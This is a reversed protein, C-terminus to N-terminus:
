RIARNYSVKVQCLETPSDHITGEVDSIVVRDILRHPSVSSLDSVLSVQHSRNLLTALRAVHLTIDAATLSCSKMNVIGFKRMMGNIMASQSDVAPTVSTVGRLFLLEDTNFSNRFVFLNFTPAVQGGPDRDVPVVSFFVERSGVSVVQFLPEDGADAASVSLENWGAAFSLTMVESKGRRVSTIKGNEASELYFLLPMTVGCGAPIVYHTADVLFHERLWEVASVAMPRVCHIATFYNRMEDIIMTFDAYVLDHERLYMEVLSDIGSVSVEGGFVHYVVSFLLETEGAYLQVGVESKSTRASVVSLESSFLIRNM